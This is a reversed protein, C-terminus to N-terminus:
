KVNGLNIIQVNSVNPLVSVDNSIKITGDYIKSVLEKYNTETFGNSWHTSELPLQVYNAEVDTKSVLGLNAIKGAYNNWNNNIVIDTLTDITTPYLGKMASTVTIGEGYVSDIVAAQDTDVGIVKGGNLSAAEAVSTYIAGGCAFVVETGSRYWSSITSTIGADGFFQNGYGYKITIDKVGLEKAAADAGQIFGVTFVGRQLM